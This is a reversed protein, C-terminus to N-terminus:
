NKNEKLSAKEGPPVCSLMERQHLSLVCQLKHLHSTDPNSGIDDIGEPHWLRAQERVLLEVESRVEFQSKTVVDKVKHEELEKGGIHTIELRVTGSPDKGTPSLIIGRIKFDTYVKGYEGEIHFRRGIDKYQIAESPEPQDDALCVSCLVVCACAGCHMMNLISNM